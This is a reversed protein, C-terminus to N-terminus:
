AKPVIGKQRVVVRYNYQDGHGKVKSPTRGNYAIVVLDGQRLGGKSIKGDIQSRLTTHFCHVALGSGDPQDIFLIYHGGYGGCACDPSIDAVTGAVQRQIDPNWGEYDRESQELMEALEPNLASRDLEQPGTIPDPLDKAM